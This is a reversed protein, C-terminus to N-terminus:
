VWIRPTTASSPTWFSAVPETAQQAGGSDRVPPVRYLHVTDSDCTVIYGRAQSRAEGGGHEILEGLARIDAGVDVWSASHGRLSCKETPTPGTMDWVKVTKDNSCSALLTGDHNWAVANVEGSHGKLSCKEEGSGVDWLKVTQDYSGSAVTKGDPSIAVSLVCGSHGRLTGLNREYEQPKGVVQEMLNLGEMTSKRAGECLWGSDPEQSAVQMWEYVSKIQADRYRMVFRRVQDLRGLDAPIGSPNHQLLRREVEVVGKEALLGCLVEVEQDKVLDQLAKVCLFLAVSQWSLHKLIFKWSDTSLVIITPATEEM